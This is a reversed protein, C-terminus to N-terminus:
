PGWTYGNAAWFSMNQPIIEEHAVKVAKSMGMQMSSTRLEKAKGWLFGRGAFLCVFESVSDFATSAVNRTWHGAPYYMDCPGVGRSCPTTIDITIANFTLPQIAALFAPEAGPLLQPGNHVLDDLIKMLPASILGHWGNCAFLRNRNKVDFLRLSVELDYEAMRTHSPTTRWTPLAYDDTIVIDLACTPIRHNPGRSQVTAVEEKIKRCAQLLCAETSRYFSPYWLELGRPKMTRRCRRNSKGRGSDFPPVPSEFGLVQEYIELRLELPLRFFPSQLQQNMITNM